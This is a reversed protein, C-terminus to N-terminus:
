LDIGNLAQGLVELDEHRQGVHVMGRVVPGQVTRELAARERSRVNRFVNTGVLRIKRIELIEEIMELSIITNLLIIDAM